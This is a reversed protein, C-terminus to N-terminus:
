VEIHLGEYTRAMMSALLSLDDVLTVGYRRCVLDVNGKRWFGEPCCVVAKGSQAYLGLELLTVPSKTDPDFYVGIVDSKELATLEWWVQERFQPNTTDQKWSSDWSDRRPNMVVGTKPFIKQLEQTVWVQWDAAAGMEISGALFFAPEGRMLRIPNPAKIVDM